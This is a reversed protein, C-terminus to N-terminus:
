NGATPLLTTVAGDEYTIGEFKHVEKWSSSSKGFVMSVAKGVTDGDGWLFVEYDKTHLWGGIKFRSVLERNATLTITNSIELSHYCTWKSKKYKCARSAPLNRMWAVLGDWDTIDKLRHIHEIPCTSINKGTM